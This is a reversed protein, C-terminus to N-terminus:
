RWESSSSGGLLFFAYKCRQAEQALTEIPLNAFEVHKDGALVFRSTQLSECKRLRLRLRASISNLTSFMHFCQVVGAYVLYPVRYFCSTMNPGHPGADPPSQSPQWRQGHSPRVHQHQWPESTCDRCHRTAIDSRHWWPTMIRWPSLSCICVTTLYAAASCHFLVHWGRSDSHIQISRM